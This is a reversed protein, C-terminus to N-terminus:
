INQVANGKSFDCEDLSNIIANFADARTWQPFHATNEMCYYRKPSMVKQYFDFAVGSSVHYDYQGEVLVIPVGFEKQSSFDTEAVERWLKIISQKSGKLRRICDALSYSGSFIFYKYLSFYSQKGYLSVGQGILQGMLFMLDSYWTDQRFTIDLSSLREQVAPDDTHSMLYTKSEEFMNHASIVQGVGIYYKVLEPYSLIFKMGIISGWSHGMLCVQEKGFEMLLTDILIKLDAVFDDITLQEEESFKYYSKGSGRQEWIILTYKESLRSNFHRVLPLASDGPGGHLYILIPHEPNTSIVHVFQKVGNISYWKNYQVM